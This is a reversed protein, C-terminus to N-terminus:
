AHLTNIFFDAMTHAANITASVQNADATQNAIWRSAQQSNQVEAATPPAVLGINRLTADYRDNVRALEITLDSHEAALQTHLNAPINGMMVVNIDALTIRISDRTSQFVGAYNRFQTDTMTNPAKHPLDPM